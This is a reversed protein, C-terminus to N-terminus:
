TAILESPVLLNHKTQFCDEVPGLSGVTGLIM